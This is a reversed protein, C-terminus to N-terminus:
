AGTSTNIIRSKLKSVKKELLAVVVAAGQCGPDGEKAVWRIHDISRPHSNLHGELITFGDLLAQLMIETLEKATPMPQEKMPYLDIVKQM